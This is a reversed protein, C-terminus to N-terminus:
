KKKPAPQAPLPRSRPVRPQKLLKDLKEEIRRQGEELKDLREHLDPEEAPPQEPPHEGSLIYDPTVHHLQALVKLKEWRLGGGAEWTQYGRLTVVPAGHLKELQEVVAPQSLHKQERLLKIRQGRDTDMNPDPQAGDIFSQAQTVFSELAALTNGNRPFRSTVPRTLAQTHTSKTEMVNYSVGSAIAFDLVFGSCMTM